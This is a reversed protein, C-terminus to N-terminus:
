QSLETVKLLITKNVNSDRRTSYVTGKGSFTGDEESGGVLIWEGLRGSVVTNATQYDFKAGGHPSQRSSFPSVDLTVRDGKVRPLVYFGTPVDKYRVSGGAGRWGYRYRDAVPVSKGTQIFAERGEVAQIRQIGVEDDQSRNSWVRANIRSNRDGDVSASAGRGERLPEGASIKVDDKRYSGTSEALYMRLDEWRGQRVSIVLKRPPSDLKSLVDKIAAINDPTTRVVLQDNMGTVTGPPPVLPEVVPIMEQLTRYGLPIVETVLEQTWGPSAVVLGFLAFLVRNLRKM